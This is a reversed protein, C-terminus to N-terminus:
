TIGSTTRNRDLMENIMDGIERLEAPAEPMSFRRSANGARVQSLVSHLESVPALVRKQLRRVANLGFLFGVGGLLVVAWAGTSGLRRVYKNAREISSWNVRAEHDLAQLVVSLAVPDGDIATHWHREITELLEREEKETINGKAKGLAEQFLSRRTEMTDHTAALAELMNEVATVSYVNEGMIKEFAPSMRTLLGISGFAIVLIISILAGVVLRIEDKVGM